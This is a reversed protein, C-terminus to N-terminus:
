LRNAWLGACKQRRTTSDGIQKSGIVVIKPVLPVQEDGGGMPLVRDQDEGIAMSGFITAIPGFSYACM